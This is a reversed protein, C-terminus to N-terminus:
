CLKERRKWITDAEFAIATTGDEDTRVIKFFIHPEEKELEKEDRAGAYVTLHDKRYTQRIWRVDISAVKYADRFTNDLAETIWNVYSVNNVHHNYDTDLYAIHPDYTAIQHTVASDYTPAKPIGANEYLTRDPTGIQNIVEDPKTPRGNELSLICWYTMASFLAKGDQDFAKVVRPCHVISGLQAWTEANLVDQWHGYHSITMISRTIVWTRGKKQLDVISCGRKAAHLAGMEQAIGFYYSLRTDYFADTDFSRIAFEDHAINKDDISLMKNRQKTSGFWPDAM